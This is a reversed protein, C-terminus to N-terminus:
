KQRMSCFQLLISQGSQFERLASVLYFKSFPMPLSPLNTCAQLGLVNSASAPSHPRFDAQAVRHFRVETLRFLYFVDVTLQSLFVFTGASLFQSQLQQATSLTPGEAHHALATVNM